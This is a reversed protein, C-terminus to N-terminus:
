EVSVVSMYGVSVVVDGRGVTSVDGGVSVVSMEGVSLASMAGVSLASTEDTLNSEYGWAAFTSHERKAGYQEDFEQLWAAADTLDQRPCDQTWGSPHGANQEQLWDLLPQFYQLMPGADMRRSGTLQQLADPWPQSSGLRLM